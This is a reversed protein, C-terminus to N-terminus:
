MERIMQRCNRISGQASTSNAPPTSAPFQRPLESKYHGQSGSRDGPRRARALLPRAEFLPPSSAALRSLGQAARRSSSKATAVCSHERRLGFWLAPLYIYGLAEGSNSQALSLDSGLPVAPFPVLETEHGRIAIDIDLWHAYDPIARSSVCGIMPLCLLRGGHREVPAVYRTSAHCNTL